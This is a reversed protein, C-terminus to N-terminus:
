SLGTGAGLAFGRLFQDTDQTSRGERQAKLLRVSGQGCAILLGDDLVTGFPGSAPEPRSMLAKIRVPGKDSPAEFWAGPFPSLGRIHCDIETATRSWDIRAEAPSIKPM